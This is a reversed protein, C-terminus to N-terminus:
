HSIFYQNPTWTTTSKSPPRLQVLSDLQPQSAVVTVSIDGAPVGAKVEAESPSPINGREEKTPYKDVVNRTAKEGTPKAVLGKGKRYPEM